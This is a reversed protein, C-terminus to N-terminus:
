MHLYKAYVCLWVILCVCECECVCVYMCMYMCASIVYIYIYMIICICTRIYWWTYICMGKRFVCTWATPDGPWTRSRGTPKPWRYIDRSKKPFLWCIHPYLPSIMPIYPSIVQQHYISLYRALSIWYLEIQLINLSIRTSLALSVQCDKASGHLFADLQADWPNTVGRHMESEPGGVLAYKFSHGILVHQFCGENVENVLQRLAPLTGRLASSSEKMWENMFGDM